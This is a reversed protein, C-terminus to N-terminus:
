PIFKGNIITEPDAEFFKKAKEDAYIVAQGYTMGIQLGEALFLGYNTSYFKQNEIDGPSETHVGTANVFDSQSHLFVAFRNEMEPDNRFEKQFGERLGGGFCASTNIIFKTDPYKKALAILSASNLPEEFEIDAENGHNSINLYFIRTGKAYEQAIELDLDKAPNDTHLVPGTEINPYRYKLTEQLVLSFHLDTSITIDFKRPFVNIHRIKESPLDFKALEKHGESELKKRKNLEEMIDTMDGSELENTIESLFKVIFTGPDDEHAIIIFTGFKERLTWSQNDWTFRFIRSNNKDKQEFVSPNLITKLPQGLSSSIPLQQTDTLTSTKQSILERAKNPNERFFTAIKDEMIALEQRALSTDIVRPAFDALLYLKVLTEETEAFDLTDFVISNAIYSRLIKLYHETLQKKYKEFKKLGSGEILKLDISARWFDEITPDTNQLFEKLNEEVEHIPDFLDIIKQASHTPAKEMNINYCM